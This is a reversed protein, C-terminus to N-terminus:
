AAAAKRLRRLRRVAELRRWLRRCRLCRSRDLGVHPGSSALGRRCDDAHEIPWVARRSRRPTGWQTPTDTSARIAALRRVADFTEPPTDM